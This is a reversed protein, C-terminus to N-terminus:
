TVISSVYKQKNVMKGTTTTTTTTITIIQNRTEFQILDSSLKREYDDFKLSRTGIWIAMFNDTDTANDM